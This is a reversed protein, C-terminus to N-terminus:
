HAQTPATEVLLQLLPAECARAGLAKHRRQEHICHLFWGATKARKLVLRSHCAHMGAGISVAESYCM